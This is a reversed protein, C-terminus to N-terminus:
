VHVAMYIYGPEDSCMCLWIYTVQNMVVPLLCVKNMATTSVRKDTVLSMREGRECVHVCYVTRNCRASADNSAYHM